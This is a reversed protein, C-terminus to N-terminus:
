VVGLASRYLDLVAEEEAVDEADRKRLAILRRLIKTDYGRAKAEAMVEKQERVISDKDAQLTEYREVFSRLEYASISANRSAGNTPWIIDEDELNEIEVRIEETAM